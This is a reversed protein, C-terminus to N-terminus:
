QRRKRKFEHTFRIRPSARPKLVMWLFPAAKYLGLMKARAICPKFLSQLPRIIPSTQTGVHRPSPTLSDSSSDTLAYTRAQAKIQEKTLGKYLYKTSQARIIDANSPKEPSFIRRTCRTKRVM